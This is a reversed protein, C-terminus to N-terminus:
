HKEMRRPLSQGSVNGTYRYSPSKDLRTESWIGVENEKWIHADFAAQAEEKSDGVYLATDYWDGPPTPSAYTRCYLEIVLGLGM